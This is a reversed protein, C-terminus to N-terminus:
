IRHEILVGFPEFDGAVNGPAPGNGREIVQEGGMDPPLVVVAETMLVRAEDVYDHVLFGVDNANIQRRISVGQERDGVVAQAAAVIDIHNYGAFLLLGLPEVHIGGDLMAGRANANPLPGAVILAG